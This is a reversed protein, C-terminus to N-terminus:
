GSFVTNKHASYEAIDDLVHRATVAYHWSPWPPSPNSQDLVKLFFVTGVPEPEKEGKITAYIFGWLNWSKQRSLCLSREEALYYREPANPVVTPARHTYQVSNAWNGTDKLTVSTFVARRSRIAPDADSLTAPIGGGEHGPWCPGTM